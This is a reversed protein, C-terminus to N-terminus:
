NIISSDIFRFIRNFYARSDSDYGAVHEIGEILWLEKKNHKVLDYMTQSNQYNCVTDKTGHIFLIPVNSKEIAKYPEVDSYWFGSKFKNYVDGCAVVYNVLVNPIHKEIVGMRIADKMESYPSDLIYFDVEQSESNIATHMAATGAGMSFGHIGLKGDPFKNKVFKVISDLDYREYLGFTYNDGGSNGTNRQNYILVNYGKDLYEYAIKLMEYHNSGMGHVIIITNKTKINSNIFLSELKYNNSSQIMLEDTKYNKLKDLPKDKRKSFVKLVDEKKILQESGVSSDYVLKGFIYSIILPILLFVVSVIIVKNRLSIYNKFSNKM